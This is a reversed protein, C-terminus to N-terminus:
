LFQEIKDIYCFWQEKKQNLAIEKWKIYVLGYLYMAIRNGETLRLQIEGVSQSQNITDEPANM